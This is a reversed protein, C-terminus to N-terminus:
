STSGVLMISPSAFTLSSSYPWLKRKISSLPLTRSTYFNDHISIKKIFASLANSVLDNMFLALRIALMKAIIKTIGHILSFPRFDSVEEAGEKKPLLAIHAVIIEVIGLM